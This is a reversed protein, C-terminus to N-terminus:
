SRVAASERVVIERNPAVARLLQDLKEVSPVTIGREYRAYANRSTAGLRESVQALSLGSKQRQRQLLLSIMARTDESALEIEDGTVPHVSVAFAKRNVGRM